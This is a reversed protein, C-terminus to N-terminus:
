YVVTSFYTFDFISYIIYHIAAKWVYVMGPVYLLYTIYLLRGFTFLVHYMSCMDKPLHISSQFNTGTEKVICQITYTQECFQLSNLASYKLVLYNFFLLAVIRCIILIRILRKVTYVAFNLYMNTIHVWYV